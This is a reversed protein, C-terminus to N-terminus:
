YNILFINFIVFHFYKLLNFTCKQVTSSYIYKLHVGGKTYM